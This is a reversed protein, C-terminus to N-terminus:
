ENTKLRFEPIINDLFMRSFIHLINDSYNDKLLHAGMFTSSHNKFNKIIEKIRQGGENSILIVMFCNPNSRYIKSLLRKNTFVNEDLFAIDVKDGILDDINKSENRPFVAIEEYNKTIENLISTIRELFEEDSDVVLIRYKNDQKFM